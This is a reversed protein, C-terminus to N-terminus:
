FTASTGDIIRLGAVASQIEKANASWIVQAKVATENMIFDITDGVPLAGYGFIKMCVGNDSIDATLADFRQGQHICQVTLEKGLRPYARKESGYKGSFLLGCYPCPKFNEVSASYSDKTCKPCTLRLILLADGSFYVKRFLSSFREKKSHCIM